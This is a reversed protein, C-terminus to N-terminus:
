KERIKQAVYEGSARGEFKKMVLGILIDHKKDPNHIKMKKYAIKANVIEKDIDTKKAPTLLFEKKFQGQKATMKIAHYVGERIIKKDKYATFIKEMTDATLVITDYNMRKLHKVFRIMAVSAFVPNIKWTNVM